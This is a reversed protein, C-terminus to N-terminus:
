AAALRPRYEADDNKLEWWIALNALPVLCVLLKHWVTPVPDFFMNACVGALLELFIASAPIAVGFFFFPGGARKRKTQFSNFFLEGAPAAPSKYDAPKYDPQNLLRQLPTDPLELKSYDDATKGSHDAIPKDTHAM